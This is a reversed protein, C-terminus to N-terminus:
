TDSRGSQSLGAGRTDLETIHVLREIGSADLVRMPQAPVNEVWLRGELEMMRRYTKLVLAIGSSDMFTIGSMDIVCDRPLEAEIKLEMTRAADGVAHQDLEGSLFFTLKTGKASSTLKM